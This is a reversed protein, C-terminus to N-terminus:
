RKKLCWAGEESNLWQATGQHGLSAAKKGDSCSGELDGQKEKAISRNAYAIADQPNIEIAKGYDAIAGQNDGSERKAIGRNYYADADQPNIEIAKSYDDIAGQYDGSRSKANGKNYYTDASQANAALNSLLIAGTTLATTFGFLIPPAFSLTSLIAIIVSTRRSMFNRKM